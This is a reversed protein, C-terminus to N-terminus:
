FIDIRIKSEDGRSMGLSSQDRGGSKCVKVRYSWMNRMIKSPCRKVRSHLGKGVLYM